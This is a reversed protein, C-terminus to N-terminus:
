KREGGSNFDEKRVFFGGIFLTGEFLLYLLLFLLLQSFLDGMPALIFTLSILGLVVYKRNRKLIKLDIIQSFTLSFIILPFQFSLGFVIIFNLLFSVYYQISVCPDMGEWASSFLFKLVVPLITLYSFVSGLIFLSTSVLGIFFCIKKERQTLGPAIFWAFTSFIVPFSLVFGILLAIKLNVLFAEAPGLFILNDVPLPKKFYELILPAKLYSIFTGIFLAVISYIFTKRLDTLHEVLSMKPGLDEM